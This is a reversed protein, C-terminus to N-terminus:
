VTNTTENYPRTWTRPCKPMTHDRELDLQNVIHRLQVVDVKDALVLVLVHYCTNTSKSSNAETLHGEAPVIVERIVEVCM